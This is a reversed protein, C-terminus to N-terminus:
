VITGGSAAAASPGTAADKVAKRVHAVIDKLLIGLEKPGYHKVLLEIFVTACSLYTEIADVKTIVQSYLHLSDVFGGSFSACGACLGEM